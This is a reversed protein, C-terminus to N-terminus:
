WANLAMPVFIIKIKPRFSNGRETRLKRVEMVPQCLRVENNHTFWQVDQIRGSATPPNMAGRRLHDIKPMLRMEIRRRLVGGRQRFRVKM